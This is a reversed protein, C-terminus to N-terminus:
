GLGIMVITLIALIVFIIKQRTLKEGFLKWAILSTVLIYFSNITYVLSFPGTSLAHTIEATGIFNLVGLLIGWGIIEINLKTGPRIGRRKVFIMICLTAVAAFFLQWFIFEKIEVNISAFKQIFKSFASLLVISVAGGILGNKLTIHKHNYNYFGVLLFTLLIGLGQVISIKDHFFSLGIIIVLVHSSLSTIPFLANTDLKNLMHMQILTVLAYLTGWIFGFTIGAPNFHIYNRFFIASLITAVVLGISTYLYKDHGKAAPVKFLASLAGIAVVAILSHIFWINM